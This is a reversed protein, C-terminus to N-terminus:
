EDSLIFILYKLIKHNTNDEKNLQKYQCISIPSYSLKNGQTNIPIETVM